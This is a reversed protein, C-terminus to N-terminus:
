KSLKLIEISGNSNTLSMTCGGSGIKGNLSDGGMQGSTTIPLESNIRGFSTRASVTYNGSEAIRVQIPAFSTKITVSNCKASTRAESVTVAGNQNDVTIGGGVDELTVSGFSMKASAEGSISNAVVPGNSNEVRLNGNVRQV